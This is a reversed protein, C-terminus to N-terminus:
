RNPELTDSLKWLMHLGAATVSTLLLMVAAYAFLAPGVILQAMGASRVVAILVGLMLVEVMSWHTTFRLAHMAPVFLQPVIGRTLPVLVYLRLLTLLLPFVIATAAALVAVMEQGASWTLVIADPLKMEARIGGLELTVLPTLNGILLFVLTAVAFAMLGNPTVIHGRGLLADCRHCHATEGRPVPVREHVAGCEDCVVLGPLAVMPARRGALTEDSAVIGAPLHTTPPEM